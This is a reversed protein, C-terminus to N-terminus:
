IAIVLMKEIVEPDMKFKKAKILAKLNGIESKKSILYGLIYSASLVNKHSLLSSRRLLIKKLEVEEDDTGIIEKKNKGDSSLLRLAKKSPKVLYGRIEEKSMEGELRLITKINIMELEESIFDAVSSGKISEAFTCMREWYYRDLGSELEFLSNLDLKMKRLSSFTNVIDIVREKKSLM